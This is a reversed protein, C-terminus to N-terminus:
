TAIVDRVRALRADRAAPAMRNTRSALLVGPLGTRPVLRTSTVALAARAADTGVVSAYGDVFARACRELADDPGRGVLDMLATAIDDGRRQAESLAAHHRTEFDILCGGGDDDVIINGLHPDGHTVGTAHARALASGAGRMVFIPDADSLAQRAPCGRIARVWVGDDLIRAASDDSAIARACDVEWARWRAPRADMEIWSDSLALYPAGAAIVLGAHAARRKWFGTAGDVTRPEVTNLRALTDAIAALRHELSM